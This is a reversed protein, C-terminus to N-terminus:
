YRPTQPDIRQSWADIGGSLNFVESFGASLLFGAVQRSRAGSHCMVVVPKEKELEGLRVPIERMPVAVAGPISAIMLEQPERVDLLVVDDTQPAEPWRARFQEPTLEPVVTM